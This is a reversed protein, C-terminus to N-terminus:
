TPGPGGRRLASVLDACTVPDRPCPHARLRGQSDQYSWPMEPTVDVAPDTSLWLLRGGHEDHAYVWNAAALEGPPVQEFAENGYRALFFAM